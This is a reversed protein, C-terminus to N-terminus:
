IALSYWNLAVGPQMNNHQADAPTNIGVGVTASLATTNISTYGVLNSGGATLDRGPHTHSGLEGAANSHTEEGFAKGLVTRATLAYNITHVGGASGTDTINVVVPTAVNANAQTTAFQISTSSLRVVYYPTALSLGAPLTGTTTLTIMQGQSPFVGDPVAITDAGTNVAGAEFALTINNSAGLGIINKGCINPLGFTLAGDGKDCAGMKYLTHVGSQSGTTVVATGEPSLAIKFTDAALSTSLVYYNVNAAIGSPLGGTTTFTIKEGAVLGHAVATIVGPSAITMTCTQPPCLAAFTLPYLTRSVLSGDWFFTGVAAVRRGTPFATGAFSALMKTLISKEGTTPLNLGYMSALLADPTVALAAGTSGTPTGANVQATTPLQVFGQLITSANSGGAIAIANIYAIIAGFTQASAGFVVVASSGHSKGSGPTVYPYKSTLNRTLGTLTATNDGNDVIATFYNVEEYGDVKPDVTFVPNTGFDATVLKNGDLDTPYPTVICSTDSGAMGVYLSIAPTQVYKPNM